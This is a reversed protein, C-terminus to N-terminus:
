RAGEDDSIEAAAEANPVVHVHVRSSQSHFVHHSRLTTPARCQRAGVETAHLIIRHFLMARNAQLIVIVFLRSRIKDRDYGVISGTEEPVNNVPLHV